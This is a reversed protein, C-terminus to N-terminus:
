VVDFIVVCMEVVMWDKIIIGNLFIVIIVSLVIGRGRGIGSGNRVDSEEEDKRMLIKLM